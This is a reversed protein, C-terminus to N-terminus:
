SLDESESIRRKKKKKKSKEEEGRRKDGVKEKGKTDVTPKKPIKYGSTLLYNKLLEGAKNQSSSAVTRQEKAKKNTSVDLNDKAKKSTSVDSNDKSASGQAAVVDEDKKSKMKKLRKAIATRKKDEKSEYIHKMVEHDYFTTRKSVAGKLKELRKALEADGNDEVKEDEEAAGEAEKMQDESKWAQSCNALMTNSIEAYKCHCLCVKKEEKKEKDTLSKPDKESIVQKQVCTNCKEKAEACEIGYHVQM